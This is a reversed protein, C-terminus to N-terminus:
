MPPPLSLARAAWPLAVFLQRRQVTRVMPAHPLQPHGARAACFGAVLAALEEPIVVGASEPAPGGEMALSPLWFAVDLLANGVTACNWDVFVATGAHFCVNDSRVDGHLLSGGDTPAVREAEILVPLAAELWRVSCLGLALFESPDAAINRWGEGMTWRHDAVGVLSPPPGHSAVAELGELVSRVGRETWPPPWTAGSLDELVLTAAPKDLWALLRPIFPARVAEYVEREAHLWRTTEEDVAQKVFVRRGDALRVLVRTQHTYGGTVADLETIESGLLSGGV